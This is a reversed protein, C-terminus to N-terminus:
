LCCISVMVLLSSKIFFGGNAKDFTSLSASFFRFDGIGIASEVTRVYSRLMEPERLGKGHYIVLRSRGSGDPGHGYRGDFGLNARCPSYVQM